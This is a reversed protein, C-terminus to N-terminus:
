KKRGGCEVHPFSSLPLSPSTGPWVTLFSSLWPQFRPTRAESGMDGTGHLKPDPDPLIFHYHLIYCLLSFMLCLHKNSVNASLLPCGLVPGCPSPGPSTLHCLLPQFLLSKKRSPDPLPLYAPKHNAQSTQIIEIAQPAPATGLHRTGPEPHYTCPSLPESHSLGMFSSTPIPPSKPHPSQSYQYCKFLVGQPGSPAALLSYTASRQTM